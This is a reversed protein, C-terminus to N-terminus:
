SGWTCVREYLWGWCAQAAPRVLVDGTLELPTPWWAGNFVPFFLILISTNIQFRGGGWQTPLFGRTVYPCNTPGSRKKKGKHISAPAHTLDQWSCFVYVLLRSLRIDSLTCGIFHLEHSNWYRYISSTVRTNYPAGFCRGEDSYLNRSM